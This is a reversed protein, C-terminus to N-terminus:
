AILERVREPPRAVVAGDPTVLIPRQMAEPHRALFRAVQRADADRGADWGAATAEKMRLMDIPQELREAIKQLTDESPKEQLYLVTEYAIGTSDLIAKAGRSKTCRPNHYLIPRM